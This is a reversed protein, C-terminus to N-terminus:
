GFYALLTKYPKLMLFFLIFGYFEWNSGQLLCSSVLETWSRSWHQVQATFTWKAPLSSCWSYSWGGSAWPVEAWSSPVEDEVFLWWWMEVVARGVEFYIHWLFQMSVKMQLKKIASMFCCSIAVSVTLLGIWSVYCVTFYFDHLNQHWFFILLYWLAKPVNLWHSWNWWIRMQRFNLCFRMVLILVHEM